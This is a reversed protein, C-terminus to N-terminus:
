IKHESLMLNTKSGLLCCAADRMRVQAGAVEEQGSHGGEGKRGALGGGRSQTMNLCVQEPFIRGMRGGGESSTYIGHELCFNSFIEKINRASFGISKNYCPTRGNWELDEGIIIIACQLIKTVTM